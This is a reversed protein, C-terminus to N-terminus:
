DSAMKREKQCLILSKVLTTRLDVAGLLATTAGLYARFRPISLLRMFNTTTVWHTRVM